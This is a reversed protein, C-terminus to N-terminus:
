RRRALAQRAERDSDRQKIAQRKDHLKRGRCLGIELKVWPGQFYLLLPVLTLGKEQVRRALRDLQDRKLLLKRSRTPEHNNHPGAQPYPPIHADSLWAEGQEIRVWAEAINGKGGRLSKTETGLLVLGSEVRELIDYEHKAKRNEAIIRLAPDRKKPRKNRGAM